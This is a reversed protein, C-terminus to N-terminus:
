NEEFQGHIFNATEMRLNKNDYDITSTVGYREWGKDHMVKYIKKKIEHLEPLKTKDIWFDVQVRQEEMFRENDSYEALDGPLATIRIWPALEDFTPSTQSNFDPTGIYIGRLEDPQGRIRELLDSLDSNSLISFVVQEPEM